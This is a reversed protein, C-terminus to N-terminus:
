RARAQMPGDTEYGAWAARKLAELLERHNSAMRDEIRIVSVQLGGVDEQIGKVDQQLQKVDEQLPVLREEIRAVDIQLLGVDQQLLGVDEKLPGIERQLAGVDGRLVGFTFVGSLIVGVLAFAAMVWSGSDKFNFPRWSDTTPEAM